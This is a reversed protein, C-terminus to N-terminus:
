CSSKLKESKHLESKVMQSFITGPAGGNSSSQTSSPNPSSIDSVESCCYLNQNGM